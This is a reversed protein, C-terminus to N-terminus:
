RQRYEAMEVMYGTLLVIHLVMIPDSEQQQYQAM